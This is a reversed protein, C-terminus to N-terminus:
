WFVQVAKLAMCWIGGCVVWWWGASIVQRLSKDLSVCVFAALLNIISIVIPDGLSIELSDAPKTFHFSSINPM